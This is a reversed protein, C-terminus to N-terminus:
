TPLTRLRAIFVRTMRCTSNHVAFDAMRPVKVEVHTCMSSHNYTIKSGEFQRSALYQPPKCSKQKSQRANKFREIENSSTKTQVPFMLALVNDHKARHSLNRQQHFAPAQENVRKRTRSLSTCKVRVVHHM